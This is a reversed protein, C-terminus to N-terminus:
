TRTYLLRWYRAESKGQETLGIDAWGTFRREKNWLSQGHRVLILNNMKYLIYYSENYSNYMLLTLDEKYRDMVEKDCYQDIFRDLKRITHESLEDKLLKRNKITKLYVEIIKSIDNNIEFLPSCSM